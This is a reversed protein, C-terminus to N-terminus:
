LSKVLFHFKYPLFIMNAHERGVDDPSEVEAWRMTGPPYILPLSHLIGFVLCSFFYFHFNKKPKLGQNYAVKHAGMERSKRLM